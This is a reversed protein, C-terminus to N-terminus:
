VTTSSGPTTTTKSIKIIQDQREKPSRCYSEEWCEKRVKPGCMLVLWADKSQTEPVKFMVEVSTSNMLDVKEM